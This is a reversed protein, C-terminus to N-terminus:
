HLSWRQEDIVNTNMESHLDWMLNGDDYTPTSYLDVVSGSGIRALIWENMWQWLRVDAPPYMYVRLVDLRPFWIVKEPHPYSSISRDQKNRVRLNAKGHLGNLPLPTQIPLSPPCPSQPCANIPLPPVSMEYPFTALPDPGERRVFPRWHPRDSTM